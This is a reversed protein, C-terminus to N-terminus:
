NVSVMKPTETAQPIANVDMYAIEWIHGDLDQYGHSYMWGHDQKENPIIGGAEKAKRVLEDVQERSEASLCILVEINKTADVIEKKTFSQFFPEILLMAYIHESIIM